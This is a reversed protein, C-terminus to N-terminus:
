LRADQTARSSTEAQGSNPTEGQGCAERRVPRVDDQWQHYGSHLDHQQECRSQPVVCPTAAPHVRSM